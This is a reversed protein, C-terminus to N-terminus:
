FTTINLLIDTLKRLTNSGLDFQRNKAKNIKAIEDMRIQSDQSIIKTTDGMTTALGDWVTRSKANLVSSATSGIYATPRTIGFPATDSENPYQWTTPTLKHRKAFALDHSWKRPTIQGSASLM